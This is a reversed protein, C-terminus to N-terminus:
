VAYPGPLGQSITTTGWVTGVNGILFPYVLSIYKLGYGNQSYIAISPNKMLSEPIQFSISVNGVSKSSIPFNSQSGVGQASNQLDFVLYFAALFLYALTREADTGFGLGPNFNVDAQSYANTIDVDCIYDLNTPDSDPAYKFDRRFQTKFEAVTPKEWAAV